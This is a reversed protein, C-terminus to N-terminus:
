ETLHTNAGSIVVGINCGTVSSGVFAKGLSNTFNVNSGSIIVGAHGCIGVTIDSVRAISSLESTTNSSGSIIPGTMGICPIPPHCCCIGIWFDGVRSVNSM